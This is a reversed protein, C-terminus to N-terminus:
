LKLKTRRWHRRKANYRTKVLPSHSGEISKPPFRSISKIIRTLDDQITERWQEGDLGLGKLDAKICDEWRRKPRCRQRKGNLVAFRRVLIEPSENEVQILM